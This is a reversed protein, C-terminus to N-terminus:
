SIQKRASMQLKKLQSEKDETNKQLTNFQSDLFEKKKDVILKWLIKFRLNTGARILDVTVFQCCMTGQWFPEIVQYLELNILKLYKHSLYFHDLHNAIYQYARLEPWTSLGVHSVPSRFTLALKSIAM